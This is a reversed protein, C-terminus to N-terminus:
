IMNNKEQEHWRCKGSLLCDIQRSKVRCIQHHDPVPCELIFLFNLIEVASQLIKAVYKKSTIKHDEIQRLTIGKCLWFNTMLTGKLHFQCEKNTLPRKRTSIFANGVIQQKAGGGLVYHSAGGNIGLGWDEWNHIIQQM